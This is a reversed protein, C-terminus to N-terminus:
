PTQRKKALRDELFRRLCISEFTDAFTKITTLVRPFARCAEVTVPVGDANYGLIVPDPRFLIIEGGPVGPVPFSQAQEELM